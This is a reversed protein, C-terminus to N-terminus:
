RNYIIQGNFDRIAILRIKECISTNCQYTLAKRITPQSVKLVKQIIQKDGYKLIIQKRM